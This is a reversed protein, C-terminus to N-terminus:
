AQSLDKMRSRLNVFAVRCVTDSQGYHIPFYDDIYSSKALQQLSEQSRTVFQSEPLSQVQCRSILHRPPDASKLLFLGGDQSNLKREILGSNAVAQYVELALSDSTVAWSCEDIWNAFSEVLVVAKESNLQALETLSPVVPWGLSEAVRRSNRDMVEISKWHCTEDNWGLSSQSRRIEDM